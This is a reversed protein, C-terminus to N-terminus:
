FCLVRNKMGSINMKHSNQGYEPYIKIVNLPCDWIYHSVPLTGMISQARSQDAVDPKLGTQNTKQDSTFCLTTALAFHASGFFPLCKM